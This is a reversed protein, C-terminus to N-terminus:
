VPKFNMDVISIHNASLKHYSKTKGQEDKWRNQIMSGNVLIEVGKRLLPHFLDALKEWAEVIIFNTNEDETSGSYFTHYAVTFSLLKKGTKTEKFEPDKALRGKIQCIHMNNAKM